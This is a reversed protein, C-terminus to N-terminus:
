ASPEAVPLLHKPLLEGCAECPIRRFISPIPVDFRNGRDLFVVDAEAMPVLFPGKHVHRCRQCFWSEAFSVHYYRGDACCISVPEWVHLKRDDHRVIALGLTLDGARGAHAIIYTLADMQPGFIGLRYLLNEDSLLTRYHAPAIIYTKLGDIMVEEQCYDQLTGM